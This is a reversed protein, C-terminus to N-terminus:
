HVDTGGPQDTSQNEKSAQFRAYVQEVHRKYSELFNEFAHIVMGPHMPGNGKVKFTFVDGPEEHSSEMEYGTAAVDKSIEVIKGGEFSTSEELDIEVM